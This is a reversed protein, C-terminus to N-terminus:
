GGGLLALLKDRMATILEQDETELAARFTAMSDGLEERAAGTLEVYAANARALVTTNALDERPPIKLRRMKERALAIEEKSLKGPVSEILHSESKGTSLVTFDLELMGSEDYTFRVDVTEEGAPRPKIGKIEYTGLKKNDKCLAHEGQFVDFTISTQLDDLTAFTRSRSAPLVTGRDIIPSFIDGIRHRGIVKTSSVGLSFPAIDRVVMDSVAADGEILAAQVAAGMAVAHDPPLSRNPLRGFYDAAFRSVCPMRTAGGVLLVEDVSAASWKADKMARDIPSVLRDLLSRWAREAEERSLRMEADILRGGEVPLAALAIRTDEVESLRRKAQECADRLRGLARRDRSKALPEPARALAWAVLADDFDDGGLRVDGATAEILVEGDEVSLATVDFTGGGLDLVVVRQRGEREHLGYVLAAATPENVIREVTLGAIRGADRTAQRQSEGFYAPVTIVARDVKRGLAAEADKVLSALVLASLDRPGLVKDGLSYLADTGMDRKFSLKTREPHTTARARAPAGVLVEGGDGASAASPTLLEGLANPLVVPKGGETMVAVLSYTTGLDIGVIV